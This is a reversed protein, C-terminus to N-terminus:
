RTTVRLKGPLNEVAYNATMDNGNGDVIKIRILLNESRGIATQSGEIQHESVTHHTLLSGETITYTDCTLPTGDYPKSADDAKVSIKRPTINLQGYHSDIKYFYTVDRGAEDVVTVSFSNQRVGANPSANSIIKVTHTSTYLNVSPIIYSLDVPLDDYSKTLDQSSASLISYYVHLSGTHPTIDFQATVDNGDPDFVLFSDITSEGYGYDTQSGSISVQYSFGVQQWNEFGTVQQVPLLPSGDHKKSVSVPTITISSLQKSPDQEDSSGTVEVPIWGVGDLYVEVWAHGISTDITVWQNATTQEMYGTVYRAPIGLARYMLTAASAYQECVGKKAVLLFYLVHNTGDPYPEYELNYVAATQIYAAVKEIVNADSASIGAISALELLAARENATLSLYNDYVYARYALEAAEYETGTLSLERLIEFGYDYYHVSYEKGGYPLIRDDNDCLNSDSFHYPAYYQGTGTVIQMLESQKGAQALALSPFLLPNVPSNTAYSPILTNWDTGTYNGYSKHRLYVIGELPTKITLMSGGGGGGGGSGGGEGGEGSGGPDQGSDGGPGESGNGELVTLIGHELLINYKETVNRGWVDYVTVEFLNESSGVETQSGYVRARASHLLKLSGQVIEWGDDELPTGDYTKTADASRFTVTIKDPQMFNYIFYALFIILIASFSISLLMIASTTPKKKM